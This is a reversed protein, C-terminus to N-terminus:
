SPQVWSSVDGRREASAIIIVMVHIMYIYSSSEFWSKALCASSKQPPIRACRRRQRAAATASLLQNYRRPVWRTRWPLGPSVGLQSSLEAQNEDVPANADLDSQSKGVDLDLSQREWEVFGELSDLPLPSLQLALRDAAGGRSSTRVRGRQM